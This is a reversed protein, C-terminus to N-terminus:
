VSYLTTNESSFHFHIHLKLHLSAFPLIRFRPYCLIYSILLSCFHGKIASATSLKCDLTMEIKGQFPFSNGRIPM